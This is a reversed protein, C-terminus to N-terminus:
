RTDDTRLYACEVTVNSCEIAQRSLKCGTACGRDLYSVAQLVVVIEIFALNNSLSHVKSLDLWEETMDASYYICRHTLPFRSHKSLATLRLM